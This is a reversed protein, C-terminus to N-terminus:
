WPHIGPKRGASRREAIWHFGSVLTVLHHQYSVPATGTAGAELSKYSNSIEPLTYLRVQMVPQVLTDLM